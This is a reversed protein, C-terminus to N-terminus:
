KGGIDTTVEETTMHSSDLDPNLYSEREKELLDEDDGERIVSLLEKPVDDEPLEELRDNDVNIDFYIPNNGRLWLM